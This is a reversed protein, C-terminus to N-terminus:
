QQFVVDFWYNGPQGEALWGVEGTVVLRVPFWNFGQNCVPAGTIDFAIGAVLSRIVPANQDPSARLSRPIGDRYTVAARDGPFLRLARRCFQAQQTASPGIPGLWYNELPYGEGLWGDIFDETPANQDSVGAPVRVRWWNLEERCIPGGLVQVTTDFLAVTLVRADINPQERLRVGTFMIAPEGITLNLAPQCSTDETPLITIFARTGRGEIAWGPQGAGTLYWWNYGNACVPGDAVTLITEVTYYNVVAGSADPINRLNVGPELSVVTGAELPFPTQCFTATDIPSVFGAPLTPLFTPTASPQIIIPTISPSGTLNVDLTPVQAVESQAVAPLMAAIPLAIMLTILSAFLAFRRRM